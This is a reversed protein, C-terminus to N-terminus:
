LQDTALNSKIRTESLTPLKKTQTQTMISCDPDVVASNDPFGYYRSCEKNLWFDSYQCSELDIARM